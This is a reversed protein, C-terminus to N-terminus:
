HYVWRSHGEQCTFLRFDHASSHCWPLRTDCNILLSVVSLFVQPHLVPFLCRRVSHHLPEGTSSSTCRPCRTTFSHVVLDVWLKMKIKSIHAQSARCTLSTRKIARIWVSDHQSLLSCTSISQKGGLNRRNIMMVEGLIHAAKLKGKFIFQEEEDEEDQEDQRGRSTVSFVLKSQVTSYQLSFHLFLFHFFVFEKKKQVLISM